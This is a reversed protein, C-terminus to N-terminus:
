ETANNPYAVGKLLDDFTTWDTMTWSFDQSVGLLDRSGGDPSRVASPELASCWGAAPQPNTSAYIWDMLPSHARDATSCETTLPIVSLADRIQASDAIVRPQLFRSNSDQFNSVAQSQLPDLGTEMSQLNESASQQDVSEVRIASPLPASNEALTERSSHLSSLMVGSDGNSGAPTGQRTAQTLDPDERSSIEPDRTDTSSLSQYLEFMLRMARQLTELLQEESTEPRLLRGDAQLQDRFISVGQRQSMERLRCYDESRDSDLYISSPKRHKPFLLKWIAFWQDEVSGKGKHSLRKRQPESIGDLRASPGRTCSADLVHRDYTEADPFIAFCRHCYFEPTHQRALHQKVDRVRRLKRSFCKKHLVPNFKWFPCALSAPKGPEKPQETKLKKSHHGDEDDDGNGSDGKEQRPHKRRRDPLLAVPTSASHSASSQTAGNGNLQANSSDGDIEGEAQCLVFLRSFVREFLRLGATAQSIYEPNESDSSISFLDSDLSEDTPSSTSTLTSQISLKPDVTMNQCYYIIHRGTQLKANDINDQNLNGVVNDLHHLDCFWLRNSPQIEHWYFVGRAWHLLKLFIGSSKLYVYELPSHIQCTGIAKLLLSFSVEIGDCPKPRRLTPYGRVTIPMETSDLLGTLFKAPPREGILTEHTSLRFSLTEHYLLELNSTPLPPNYTPQDMVQNGDPDTRTVPDVLEAPSGSHRLVDPYSYGARAISPTVFTLQGLRTPLLACTLWALQEGYEAVSFRSGEVTVLLSDSQVSIAIRAKDSTTVVAVYHKKPVDNSRSGRINQLVEQLAELFRLGSSPWTQRFYEDITTVQIDETSQTFVTLRSFEHTQTSPSKLGHNLRAEIPQWPVAFTVRYILPVRYKSIREPPFQQLIEERIKHVTIEEPKESRQLSCEKLLATIFWDYAASNQLTKHYSDLGLQIPTSDDDDVDGVGKFLETEEVEKQSKQNFDDWMNMKDHLSMGGLNRHSIDEDDHMVMSQLQACIKAHNFHVFYMVDRSAQCSDEQGIKIALAKILEPLTKSLASWGRADVHIQLKTNIDHCLESIYSQAHSPDAITAVSYTTRTDDDDTGGRQKLGLDKFRQEEQNGHLSDSRRLPYPCSAYGSDTLPAGKAAASLAPQAEFLLQSDNQAQLNMDFGSFFTGPHIRTKPSVHEDDDEPDSTAWYEEPEQDFTIKKMLRSNPHRQGLEGEVEPLLQTESMYSRTPDHPLTIVEYKPLDNLVFSGTPQSEQVTQQNGIRRHNASVSSLRENRNADFPHEKRFPSTLVVGRDCSDKTPDHLRLYSHLKNLKLNLDGEVNDGEVTPEINQPEPTRVYLRDKEFKSFPFESESSKGFRGIARSVRSPDLRQGFFYVDSGKGQAERKRIEQALTRWETASLKKFNAFRSKFQRVTVQIGYKENISKVTEAAAQNERIYLQIIDAMYTSWDIPM